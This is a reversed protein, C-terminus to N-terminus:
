AVLAADANGTLEKLLWQLVNRADAIVADYSLFTIGTESYVASMAKDVEKGIIIIDIPRSFKRTLDDRYKKAQGEADRGVPDSPRKFEILLYRGGADQTLFLDPRKGARKGTFKKGTYEEVIKALTKNSAMVSYQPGFVWLNRDLATHMDKELTKPNSALQDLHDLLQLRRRAQQAMVALDVLGFEELAAAFQAVDTTKAQDVTQCVFWYEDKEMADLMVNVITDIREESEGYFKLLIRHLQHRVFRRRHEPLHALRQEIHKERRKVQDKVETQLKKRVQHGVQGHIWERTEQYAKSNEIIAGWDATVDQELSDAIVEGVVQRLLRNPVTHDEDLGFFTPRGVVKGGVRIVIGAQNRQAPKDMITFNITVTGANPLNVTASFRQGPIDEHALKEENVLIDFDRERSYELALIERLSEAQPLSFKTNLSSLTISTGHEKPDCTATAVPLNVKELDRHAEIIDRKVIRLKTCRGRTQTQLDMVDATVFGAFKGIGKRGKVPRKKGPTQMGKRTRRDNAINLYESRVERETMGTGDDRVIIPENTMPKPLTIWVHEADADWANDILEKLAQETSRYNEGLLSALRPDVRFKAPRSVAQDKWFAERSTGELAGRLLDKDTKTDIWVLNKGESM